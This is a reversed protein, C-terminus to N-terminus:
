SPKVKEGEGRELWGVKIRGILEGLIILYNNKIIKGIKGWNITKHFNESNKGWILKL